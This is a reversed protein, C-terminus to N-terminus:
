TAPQLLVLTAFGTLAMLLPLLTTSHKMVDGPRAPGLATRSM